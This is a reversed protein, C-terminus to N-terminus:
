FKFAPIQHRVIRGVRKDIDMVLECWYENGEPSNFWSFAQSILTSPSGFEKEMFYDWISPMDWYHRITNNKFRFREETTLLKIYIDIGKM